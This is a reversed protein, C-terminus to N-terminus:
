AVKNLHQDLAKLSLEFLEGVGDGLAHCAPHNGDRAVSELQRCREALERAGVHASSSKLTHAAVAVAELDDQELGQELQDLLPPTQSRFLAVIRSLLDPKGPRQLASIAQLDQIDIYRNM